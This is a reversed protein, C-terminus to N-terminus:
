AFTGAIAEREANTVRSDDLGPVNIDFGAKKFGNIGLQQFVEVLHEMQTGHTKEWTKVGMSGDIGGNGIHLDLTIPIVLWDSPRQGVGRTIGAESLSGSHCHHLTVDSRGTVVCPMSRVFEHHQKLLKFEQPDIRKSAKTRRNM